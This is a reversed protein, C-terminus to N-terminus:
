QHGSARLQAAREALLPAPQPGRKSDGAGRGVKSLGSLCGPALLWRRMETQVGCGFPSPHTGGSGPALADEGAFLSVPHVPKGSLGGPQPCRLDVGLLPVQDPPIHLFGPSRVRPLELTGCKLDESDDNAAAKKSGM